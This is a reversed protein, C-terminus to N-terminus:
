QPPAVGKKAVQGPNPDQGLYNGLCFFSVKTPVHPVWIGKVSFPIVTSPHLVKFADCISYRASTVGRWSVSNEM